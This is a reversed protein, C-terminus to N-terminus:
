EEGGTLTAGLVQGRKPSMRLLMDDVATLLPRLELDSGYELRLVHIGVMLSVFLSALGKADIAPDLAGEAQARRFLQETLLVYSRQLGRGEVATAVPHRSEALTGELVLITEERTLQTVLREGLISGASGLLKAPSDGDDAVRGFLSRTREGIAEFVAAILEDKGPFYRYLAGVSLGAETAVDQMSASACGKCSFVATAAKLILGRRSQFHAPTVKSV